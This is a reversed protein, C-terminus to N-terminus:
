KDGEQEAEAQFERSLLHQPEGGACRASGERSANAARVAAARHVQL